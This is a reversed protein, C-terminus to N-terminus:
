PKVREMDLLTFSLINNHDYDIYWVLKDHSMEWDGSIYYVTRGIRFELRFTTENVSYSGGTGSEWKGEAGQSDTRWSGHINFHINVPRDHEYRLAARDLVPSLGSFINTLRRWLRGDDVRWSGVWDQRYESDQRHNLFVVLAIFIVVVIFCIITFLRRKEDPSLLTSGRVPTRM